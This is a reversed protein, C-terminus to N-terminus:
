STGEVRQSSHSAQQWGLLQISSAGHFDERGAVAGHAEGVGCSSHSVGWSQSHKVFSAAM